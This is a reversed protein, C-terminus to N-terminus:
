LGAAGAALVVACSIIWMVVPDDTLTRIGVVLELDPLAIGTLFIQRPKILSVSELETLTLDCLSVAPFSLLPLVLIRWM